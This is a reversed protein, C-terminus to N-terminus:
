RLIVLRDIEEGNRIRRLQRKLHATPDKPGSEDEEDEHEDLKEAVVYKVLPEPIAQLTHLANGLAASSPYFGRRRGKRENRKWRLRQLFFICGFLFSAGLLSCLFLRDFIDM